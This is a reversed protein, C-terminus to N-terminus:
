YNYQNEYVKAFDPYEEELDAMDNAVLQSTESYILGKNSDISCQMFVKLLNNFHEQYQEFNEIKPLIM